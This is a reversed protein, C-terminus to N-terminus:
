AAESEIFEVEYYVTVGRRYCRECRLSLVVRVADGSVQIRVAPPASCLPCRAPLKKM